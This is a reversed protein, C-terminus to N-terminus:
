DLQQKSYPAKLVEHTYYGPKMVHWLRGGENYLLPQIDVLPGWLGEWVEIVKDCLDILRGPWRSAKRAIDLIARHIRSYKLSSLSIGVGLPNNAFATFKDHLDLVDDPTLFQPGERAVLPDLNDRIRRALIKLEDPSYQTTSGGQITSSGPAMKPHRRLAGASFRKVNEKLKHMKTGLYSLFSRHM